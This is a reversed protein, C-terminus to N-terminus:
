SGSHHGSTSHSGEDSAVDHSALHSQSILADEYTVSLDEEDADSGYFTLKSPLPLSGEISQGSSIRREPKDDCLKLLDDSFQCHDEIGGKNLTESSADVSKRENPVHFALGDSRFHPESAEVVNDGDPPPLSTTSRENDSLPESRSAINNAAADDAVLPTNHGTEMEEVGQGTDSSSGRLLDDKIPFVEHTEQISLPFSEDDMDFLSGSILASSFNCSQIDSDQISISNGGANPMVADTIGTTKESTYVEITDSEMSAASDLEARIQETNSIYGHVDSSLSSSGKDYFKYPSLLAAELMAKFDLAASVLPENGEKRVPEQEGQFLDRGFLTDSRISGGDSFVGKPERINSFNLSERELILDETDILGCSNDHIYEESGIIHPLRDHVLGTRFSSGISSTRNTKQVHNRYSSLGLSIAEKYRPLIDNEYSQAPIGATGLRKADEEMEGSFEDEESIRNSTSRHYLLSRFSNLTNKMDQEVIGTQDVLEHVEMTVANARSQLEKSFEKLWNMIENQLSLRKTISNEM